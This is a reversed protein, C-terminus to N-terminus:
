PEEVAAGVEVGYSSLLAGRGALRLQVVAGHAPNALGGPDLDCIQAVLRRLEDPPLVIAFAGEDHEGRLDAVLDAGSGEVPDALLQEALETDRAEGVGYIQAIGLRVLVRDARHRDPEARESAAILALRVSSEPASLVSVDREGPDLHLTDNYVELEFRGGTHRVVTLSTNSVGVLPSKRGRVGLVRTVLARIVGGHTVALVRETADDACLEDFFADVRAEFEEM